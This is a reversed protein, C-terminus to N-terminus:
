KNALNKSIDKVNDTYTLYLGQSQLKFTAPFDGPDQETVWIVRLPQNPHQQNYQHIFDLASQIDSMYMITSLIDALGSDETLIITSRKGQYPYLTKPDILHHQRTGNSDIYYREYDGSTVISLPGTTNIIDLYDGKNPNEIGVGWTKGDAKPGIIKVNGGGNLFGHKLGADTLADVIKEVAYGKAVGGVDLSVKPHTLYITSQEKDIVVYKWGVYQGAEALLQASPPVPFINNSNDIIGDDRYQHWIETVAGLTIDFTQNGQDSWKKSLLILDMLDNSVKVPAIGANDNITKINNVGNYSNYRDFISNYYRAKEAMLDFYTMFEDESNAFATLQFPTDFGVDLTTQSYQKYETKNTCGALVLLCIIIIKKM